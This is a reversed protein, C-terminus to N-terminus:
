SVVVRNSSMFLKIKNNTILDNCLIIVNEDHKEKPNIAHILEVKICKQLKKLM